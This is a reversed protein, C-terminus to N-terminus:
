CDMDDIFDEEYSDLDHPPEDDVYQLEKRSRQPAVPAKPSSAKPAKPSSAKPAKPSSAKPAKPAAV